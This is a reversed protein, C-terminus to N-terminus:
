AQKESDSQDHEAEDIHSALWAEYQLRDRKLVADYEGMPTNFRSKGSQMQEPYEAWALVDRYDIRAADIYDILKKPDGESLKLIAIQVRESEKDGFDQLALRLLEADPHAGFLSDFIKCALKPM